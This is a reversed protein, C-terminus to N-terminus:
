SWLRRQGRLFRQRLLHDLSLKGPGNLILPLLMALYILPLKWGGESISYGHGAHVAAIAVLTLISLAIAFFRTGLGLLLALPGVIELLTVLNWSIEPAVLNFPFPFQSHIEHFWNAGNLKQVGADWFEKALILRLALPAIWRGAAELQELLSKLKDMFANM